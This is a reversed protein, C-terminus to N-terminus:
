KCSSLPTIVLYSAVQLAKEGAEMRKEEKKKRRQPCQLAVTKTALQYQFIVMM